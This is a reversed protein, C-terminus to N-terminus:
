RRADPCNPVRCWDAVHKCDREACSVFAKYPKQSVKAIGAPVIKSSHHVPCEWKPFGAFAEPPLDRSQRFEPSPFPPEPDTPGSEPQRPEPATRAAEANFTALDSPRLLAALKETADALRKVDQGMPILFDLWEQDTM